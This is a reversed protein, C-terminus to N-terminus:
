LHMSIEIDSAFPLSLYPSDGAHLRSLYDPAVDADDAIILAGPRLRPELLDLIDTYLGKAGDLVLLDITDPLDKRLTQLADGERVDILHDLGAQRFTERARAVKGPEFETTIIKGAGGLDALATALYLTSVGFSTGFEVISRAGTARTLMHILLGTQRSVPLPLDKLESYLAQYGTKTQMLRKREALPTAELIPNKIIEAQTFLQDLLTTVTPSSLHSQTSM